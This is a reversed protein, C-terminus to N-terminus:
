WSPARSCKVLFNFIIHLSVLSSFQLSSINRNWCGSHCKTISICQWTNWDSMTGFISLFLWHSRHQKTWQFTEINVQIAGSWRARLSFCHPPCRSDWRWESADTPNKGQTGTRCDTWPNSWLRISIKGQMWGLQRQLTPFSLCTYTGPFCFTRFYGMMGFHIRVVVVDNPLNALLAKELRQVTFFQGNCVFCAGSSALIVFKRDAGWFDCGFECVGGFHFFAYATGISRM